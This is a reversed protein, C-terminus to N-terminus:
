RPHPGPCLLALPRTQRWPALDLHSFLHYAWLKFFSTLLLCNMEVSPDQHFVGLVPSVPFNLMCRPEARTNITRSWLKDLTQAGAVSHEDQLTTLVKVREVNFHVHSKTTDRAVPDGSQLSGCLATCYRDHFQRKAAHVKSEGKKQCM